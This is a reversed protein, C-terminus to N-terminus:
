VRRLVSFPVHKRYKHYLLARADCCYRFTRNCKAHAVELHSATHLVASFIRVADTLPGAPMPCQPMNIDVKLVTGNRFGSM